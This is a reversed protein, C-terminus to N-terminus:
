EAKDLAQETRRLLIDRKIRKIRLLDDHNLEDLESEEVTLWSEKSIVVGNLYPLCAQFLCDINEAISAEVELYLADKAKCIREALESKNPPPQQNNLAYHAEVLAVIDKASHAQPFKNLYGSILSELSEQEAHHDDTGKIENDTMPKGRIMCNACNDEEDLMGGCDNCLHNSM